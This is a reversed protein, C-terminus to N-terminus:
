CRGVVTDRWCHGERRVPDVFGPCWIECTCDTGANHVFHGPDYMFYIHKFDAHRGFIDRVNNLGTGDNGGGRDCVIAFVNETGLERIMDMLDKAIVQATM